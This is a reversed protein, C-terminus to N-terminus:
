WRTGVMKGVKDGLRDQELWSLHSATGEFVKRGEHGKEHQDRLQSYGGQCDKVISPM